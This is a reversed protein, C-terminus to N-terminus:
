AAAPFTLPRSNVNAGPTLIIIIQHRSAAFREM